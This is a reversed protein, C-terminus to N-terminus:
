KKTLTFTNLVDGPAIEIKSEIMAGFETGESVSNAAIKSQQLEKIKGRGIEAERRMIKVVAGSKVEGSLVRAGVVQKNLNGGFVKLIKSSSELEEVEIRPEREELLKLVKDKLEYIIKFLLVEVDSREALATAQPDVKVGFGILVSDEKTIALKVDSENVNGIGSYIIKPIIRERSIKGLEGVIAEMSGAADAKVIINLLSVDERSPTKTESVKKGSERESFAVAEDKKLFTKFKAGVQPMKDWGSIQVPSSFSIEELLNGEADALSRIPALAGASAVFLGRRITGDKVICSANIGKKPDCRSEIIYGEGLMELDGTKGDLESVLAIMELLDSVGQGTISSLEVVPVDGGYGEVYVENEALSQKTREINASPKDIKTIAAIFPLSSARIKELAEVTQPKVGDEASVVLVAIDAINAGRARIGSFAEHGPTDLFTIKKERGDKLTHKIEYAGIHQTIGGAERAVINTKRIYDILTSKGHDIHGLVAVVPPRPEGNVGEPKNM